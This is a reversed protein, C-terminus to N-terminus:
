RVLTVFGNIATKGLKAIYYYTGDVCPKKNKQINGDWCRTVDDSEFM